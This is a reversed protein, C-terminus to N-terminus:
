RRAAATSCIAASSTYASVRRRQDAAAGRRTQAIALLAAVGTVCFVRAAACESLGM